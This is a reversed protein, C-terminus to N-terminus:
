SQTRCSASRLSRSSSVAHARWAASTAGYIAMLASNGSRDAIAFPVVLKVAVVDAVQRADRNVRRILATADIVHTKMVVCPAPKIFGVPERIAGAIREDSSM